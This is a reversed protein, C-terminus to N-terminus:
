PLFLREFQQLIVALRPNIICHALNGARSQLSSPAGSVPTKVLLFTHSSPKSSNLWWVSSQFFELRYSLRQHAKFPIWLMRMRKSKSDSSTILGKRRAVVNVRCRKGKAADRRGGRMEEGRQGKCSGTQSRETATLRSPLGWGESMNKLADHAGCRGHTRTHASLPRM